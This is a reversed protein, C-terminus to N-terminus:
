LTFELEKSVRVPLYHLAQPHRVFLFETSDNIMESDVFLLGVVKFERFSFFTSHVQGYTEQCKIESQALFRIMDDTSTFVPLELSEPNKEVVFEPPDLKDMLSELVTPNKPQKRNFYNSLYKAQTDSPIHVPIGYEIKGKQLATFKFISIKKVGRERFYQLDIGFPVRIQGEVFNLRKNPPRREYKQKQEQGKLRHYTEALSHNLSMEPFPRQGLSAQVALLEDEGILKCSNPTILRLIQSSFGAPVILHLGSMKKKSIHDEINSVIVLVTVSDKPEFKHTKGELVIDRISKLQDYKAKFDSCFSITKSSQWLELIKANHERRDVMNESRKFPATCSKKNSFTLSIPFVMGQPLESPEIKLRIIDELNKSIGSCSSLLGQILDFCKPGFLQYFSLLESNFKLEKLGSLCSPAVLLLTEENSIDHMFFKGQFQKELSKLSEKKNSAIIASLFHSSDKAIKNTHLFRWVTRQQKMISRIPIRIGEREELKMRKALYRHAELIRPHCTNYKWWLSLDPKTKFLTRRFGRRSMGTRQIKKKKSANIPKGQHRVRSPIRFRNHSMARRRMHKPLIQMALKNSLKNKSKLLQTFYSVEKARAEIFKMADIYFGKGGEEGERDLEM